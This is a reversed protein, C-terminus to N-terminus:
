FAAGCDFNRAPVCPFCEGFPQLSVHAAEALKRTLFDNSVKAARLWAATNDNGNADIGLSAQDSSRASAGVKRALNVLQEKGNSGIVSRRRKLVRAQAM